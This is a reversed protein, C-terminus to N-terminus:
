WQVTAEAWCAAVVCLWSLVFVCVRVLCSADHVSRSFLLRCICRRRVFLSVATLIQSGVRQDGACFSAACVTLPDFQPCPLAQALPLQQVHPPSPGGCLTCLALSFSASRVSSYVFSCHIMHLLRIGYAVTVFHPRCVRRHLSLHCASALLLPSSSIFLRPTPRVGSNGGLAAAATAIRLQLHDLYVIPRKGAGVSAMDRVQTQGTVGSRHKCKEAQGQGFGDLFTLGLFAGRAALASARAALLDMCAHSLDSPWAQACCLRKM